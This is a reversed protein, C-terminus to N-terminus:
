HAPPPQFRQPKGTPSLIAVLDDLYLPLNLTGEASARVIDVRQVGHVPASFGVFIELGPSEGKDEQAGTLAYEQLLHAGEADAYFRVRPNVGAQVRCLVFGVAYLAPRFVMTHINPDPQTAQGLWLFQEASTQFNTGAGIARQTGTWKMELAPADAATAGPLRLGDFSETAATPAFGQAREFQVVLRHPSLNFSTLPANGVSQNISEQGPPDVVVSRLNIPEVWGGQAATALLLLAATWTRRVSPTM